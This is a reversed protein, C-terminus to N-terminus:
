QQVITGAGDSYSILFFNLYSFTTYIKTDVTEEPPLYCKYKLILIELFMIFGSQKGITTMDTSNESSHNQICALKCSFAVPVFILLMIKSLIYQNIM